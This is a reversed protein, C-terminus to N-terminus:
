QFNSPFHGWRPFISIVQNNTWRFCGFSFSLIWRSVRVFDSFKTFVTCVLSGQPAFEHGFNSIQTKPTTNGCKEGSLRSIRCPPATREGTGFKVNVPAVHRGQPAFFVIKPDRLLFLVPRCAPQAVRKAQRYYSWHVVSAELIYRHDQILTVNSKMVWLTLTGHWKGMLWFSQCPETKDGKKNAM